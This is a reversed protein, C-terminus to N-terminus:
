GLDGRIEAYKRRALDVPLTVGEKPQEQLHWIYAFRVVGLLAALITLGGVMVQLYANAGHHSSLRYLTDLGALLVGSSTNVVSVTEVSWVGRWCAQSGVAGGTLMLVAAAIPVWDVPTLPYALTAPATIYVVGLLSSVVYYIVSAITLTRPPTVTAWSGYVALQVPKIINM